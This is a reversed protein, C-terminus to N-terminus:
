VEKSALAPLIKKLRMRINQMRSSQDFARCRRTEASKHIRSTETTIFGKNARGSDDKRYTPLESLSLRETSVLRVQSSTALLQRHHPILSNSPLIILRQSSEKGLSKPKIM